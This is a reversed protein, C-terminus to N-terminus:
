DQWRPAYVCIAQLVDQYSAAPFFGSAMASCTSLHQLAYQKRHMQWPAAPFFRIKGACHMYVFQKCYMQCSAAPFFLSAVIDFPLLHLTQVSEADSALAWM